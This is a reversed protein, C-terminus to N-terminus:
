SYQAAHLLWKGPYIGRRLISSSVVTTLEDQGPILSHLCPYITFIIARRNILMVIFFLADKKRKPTCEYDYYYLTKNSDKETLRTFTDNPSKAVFM